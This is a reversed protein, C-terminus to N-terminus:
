MGECMMSFCFSISFCAAARPTDPTVVLHSLKLLPPAWVSASSAPAPAAPAKKVPPKKPTVKLVALDTKSDRGLVKDVKLKSGDHFNIVIEDAGDGDIDMVLASCRMGNYTCASDAGNLSWDQARFSEPLAEVGM